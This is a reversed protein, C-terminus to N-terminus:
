LSQYFFIGGLSALIPVSMQVLAAQVALLDQLARYWVVYGGASAVAGSALAAGLTFPDPRAFSSEFPGGLVKFFAGAVLALIFAASFNAATTRQPNKAKQGLLSYIGWTVGSIGMFFAGSRSPLSLSPYVLGGLGAIAIAMGLFTLLNPREGQCIGGAFMTIQIASFIILAGTGTSLTQYAFSFFLAYAFLMFSMCLTPGNLVSKFRFNRTILMLVLGGSGLRILTFLLPDMQGKELAFRCLVSNAAFAVMAVLTLVAFKQSIM